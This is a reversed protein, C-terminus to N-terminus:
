LCWMESVARGGFSNNCSSLRNSDMPQINSGTLWAAVREIACSGDDDGDEEEEEVGEGENGGGCIEEAFSADTRDSGPPEWDSTGDDAGASGIGVLATGRGKDISGEADGVGVEAEIDAEGVAAVETSLLLRGADRTWQCRALRLVGDIVDPECNPILFRRDDDDDGESRLEGDSGGLVARFESAGASSSLVFLPLPVAPDAVRSVSSVREIVDCRDEVVTPADRGLRRERNLKGNCNRLRLRLM